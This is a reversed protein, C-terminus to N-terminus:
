KGGEYNSIDWGGIERCDKGLQEPLLCTLGGSDTALVAGNLRCIEDMGLLYGAAAVFFCIFFLLVYGVWMKKKGELNYTEIM